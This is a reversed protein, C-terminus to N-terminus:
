GVPLLHSPDWVKSSSTTTLEDKPQLQHYNLQESSPSPIAHCLMTFCPMVNSLVSYGDIQASSVRIGYITIHYLCICIYIYTHTYIYIHISLSLSTFIYLYIPMYIYLYKKKTSTYTYIYIYMYIYLYIMYLYVSIIIILMIIMIIIIMIIYIITHLTTYHETM